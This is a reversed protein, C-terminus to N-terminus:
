NLKQFLCCESSNSFVDFFERQLFEYDVGEPKHINENLYDLLSQLEALANKSNGRKILLRCGEAYRCKM